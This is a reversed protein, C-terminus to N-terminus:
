YLKIVNVFTPSYYYDKFRREIELIATKADDTEIIEYVMKENLPNFYVVCYLSM